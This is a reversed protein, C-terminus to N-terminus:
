VIQGTLQVALASKEDASEAKALGIEPIFTQPLQKSFLCFIWTFSNWGASM